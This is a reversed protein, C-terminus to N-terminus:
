LREQARHGRPEWGGRVVLRQDPQDVAYAGSGLIEHSYRHLM